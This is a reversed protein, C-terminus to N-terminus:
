SSKRVGFLGIMGVFFFATFALISNLMSGTLEYILGYSITGVVIAVKESVDYFSFYSAHDETVPLLKSYTSRSLSQTGGMVMGVCFAILYFYYSKSQEDLAIYKFIVYAAICIGAWIIIAIRLAGINGIRESLYSFLYSGAIAVLQIILITIILETSELKLEDTGFLTAIYMVTQLAMSYFFFSFLFYRLRNLDKLERLVKRLERYGGLLSSVSNKQPQLGANYGKQFNRLASFTIQAFLAWWIGVTLFSIKAPLKGETMGFWGPQMIMLLNVILLLVSGLYGLAFGKASVRDQEKEEAIEPLFANYFVLSGCFGIAAVIFPIIGTYINDGNFFYLVSCSVAGLYCFFQMFLLKNRRYDAISSLLPSILAIFLFATSLAYSYLAGRLFTRGAFHVEDPTVANYYIPFVASTIVLSYVSNAWDYMAWSNILKKDGRKLTKSSM